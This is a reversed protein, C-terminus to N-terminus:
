PLAMNERLKQLHRTFIAPEIPSARAPRLQAAEPKISKFALTTAGAAALVALMGGLLIIRAM